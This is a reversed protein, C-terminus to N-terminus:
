SHRPLLGFVARSIDKIADTQCFGTLAVIIEEILQPIEEIEYVSQIGEIFSTASRGYNVTFM